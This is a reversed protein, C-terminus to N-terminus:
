VVSKRDETHATVNSAIVPLGCSAAEIPTLSFGEGRSILVYAHCSNYIKPMDREPMPKTYLLIHPLDNESKKVTSKINNFNELIINGGNMVAQTNLPNTVLILSVDEDGSFEDMFAKLLIDFGKRMSYRSVCLFRFKRTSSGFDITGCDPKYRNVDVGLPMVYIPPHINSRQMLSKGFNSPVWLEDMLNLKECYDKHLSSSEIMTYSIKRGAHTVDSPVTMSYIKPAKPSIDLGELFEIQKQTEENVEFRDSVDEVKIKVNRNSLGFILSRNCKSFGSFSKTSGRFFCEVRDHFNITESEQIKIDSMTKKEKKREEEYDEILKTEPAYTGSDSYGNVNVVKDERDDFEDVKIFDFGRQIEEEKRFKPAIIRECGIEYASKLSM